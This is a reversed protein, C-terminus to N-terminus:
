RLLKRIQAETQERDILGTHQWAIRGQKDILASVPMAEVKYRDALQDNGLVIPYPVPKEKLFAQVTKWDDDLSIGIITFNRKRYKEYFAALWPMEQVCPACHTAWFNVLVTKGKLKALQIEHGKADPLTFDPASLASLLLTALLKM